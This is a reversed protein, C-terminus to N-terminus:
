SMHYPVYIFSESSVLSVILPRYIPGPVGTTISFYLVILAAGMIMVKEALSETQKRAEIM